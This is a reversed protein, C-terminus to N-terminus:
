QQLLTACVGLLMDGQLAEALVQTRGALSGRATCVCVRFAM